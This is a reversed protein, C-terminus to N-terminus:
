TEKMADTLAAVYKAPTINRGCLVIAVKCGKLEDRMPLLGALAVGAAGEVMWREHEALLWMARKIGRESVAVRRDMTRACLELTVSGPEIGGATGDSITESEVVDHIHGKEIARMLCPSAEPWAGILLAHSERGKLATGVGSALGGGGVSVIVAELDPASDLLELGITGQGAIVTLDNYPSVFLQGSKEADHRAILEVQLGPADLLRLEAGYARIAELKTTSAQTSAYVTVTVGANRGALAVAQGHNGSSATVVGQRRTDADLLRLTNAAGRYKFSGTTQLHEAKLWLDCEFHRSLGESKLLPTNLMEPPRRNSADQISDFLSM